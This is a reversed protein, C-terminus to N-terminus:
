HGCDCRLLILSKCRLYLDGRLWNCTLWERAAQKALLSVLPRLAVRIEAPTMIATTECVLIPMKSQERGTSGNRTMTTTWGIYFKTFGAAYKM